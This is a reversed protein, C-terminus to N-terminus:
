QSLILRGIKTQGKESRWEITYIGPPFTSLDLRENDSFDRKSRIEMGVGNFVRLLGPLKEGTQVQVIGTSPSPSVRLWSEADQVPHKTGVHLAVTTVTTNTVIPANFDFYIRATNSIKQGLALGTKPRIRYKVFGHSEPENFGSPPLHIDAFYFEVIGRGKLSTACTHSSALVEFTSVDLREFDLTDTIRVFEAPYTGTNQFRVTYTLADGVQIQEPSINAHDCRKDNPDYSGVVTESLFSINSPLYADPQAATIDAYAEAKSGLPTNAPVKVNIIIKGEFSAPILSLDWILTDGSLNNFAPFASQFELGQKAIFRISGGTNATGVNGYSLCINANFGPRFVTQSTLDIQCDVINPPFYLGFDKGTASGGVLYFEPNAQVWPAPKQVRLTDNDLLAPLHYDGTASTTAFSSTGAQIFAGPYPSEGMDQQGNNNDDRWLKGSFQALMISALPRRWLPTPEAGYDLIIDGNHLLVQEGFFQPSPLNGAIDYWEDVLGQSLFIGNYALVVLYNGDSVLYQAGIPFGFDSLLNNSIKSFTLGNNSSVMINSPDYAFLHAGDSYLVPSNGFQALPGLGAGVSQWSIGGNSSRFLGTSGRWEFLMGAHAVLGTPNEAVGGTPAWTLGNDTTEYIIAPGASWGNDSELRYFHSGADLFVQSKGSPFQVGLSQWHRMDGVSRYLKRDYDIAFYSGKYAYVPYQIYNADIIPQFWTQGNDESFYSYLSLYDGVKAIRGYFSSFDEFALGTSQFEWFNGGDPSRAIGVNGCALVTNGKRAIASIPQKDLLPSFVSWTNGGDVSTLLSNGSPTYTHVFWQNGVLRIQYASGAALVQAWDAGKNVSRQVGTATSLMLTDGHIALGQARFGEHVLAWSNGEDTSLLLSDKVALWVENGQAMMQLTNPYYLQGADFVTTLAGPNARNYRYVANHTEYLIYNDTVELGDPYANGGQTQNTLLVWAQGNDSSRYLGVDKSIAYLENGAAKVVSSYSGFPLTQSWNLGDNGSHYCGSETVAVWDNGISIVNYVTENGPGPMENWQASLSLSCSLMLCLLAPRRFYCNHIM